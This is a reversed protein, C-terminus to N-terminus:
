KHGFRYSIGLSFQKEPLIETGMNGWSKGDWLYLPEIVFNNKLPLYASFYYPGNDLFTTGIRFKFDKNPLPSGGFGAMFALGPASVPFQDAIHLEAFVIDSPGLRLYFQPFVPTTFYSKEPIQNLEKKSDGLTYALYGIHLGGGIGIWRSDYKIFPNLGFLFKYIELSDFQRTQSYNGLFVTGGYCLIKKKDPSFKTFSYGGGGSIYKQTFYMYDNINQCGSGTNVYRADSYSGFALGGGITHYSTYKKTLATDLQIRPITQSMLLLPLIISCVYIWKYRLTTFARFIQLGVFFVAPLLAINLAIVEPLTFWNLLTLIIIVLSLLYAIQINLGPLKHSRIDSISKYTKERWILLLTMLVAFILYEWQVQKLIWLMEGGSKNTLPDRFFELVFRMLAFFIISSLLLSGNAKWNRRFKIVFMIVLIGGLLEYLQVPHVPLSYLNNYTLLGSKFQHYHALSMVPYQIAWPLSSPNGFCCGYFFCGITQISAAAPFAIALTDWVSHRFNLLYRVILYAAVGLLAGGYITKEYTPLFTHNQLMFQWEEWSYSFIKTGIVEALRISALLLVWVHLPFKRKYGEYILILYVILFALLYFIQYLLGGNSIDMLFHRDM